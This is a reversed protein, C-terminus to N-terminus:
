MVQSLARTPPASCAVQHISTGGGITAGSKPRLTYEKAGAKAGEEIGAKPLVLWLGPAKAAASQLKVRKGTKDTSLYSTGCSKALSQITYYGPRLGSRKWSARSPSGVGLVPGAPPTPRPARSLSM